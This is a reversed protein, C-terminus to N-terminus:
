LRLSRIFKAVKREMTPAKVDGKKSVLYIKSKKLPKMGPPYSLSALRRDPIVHRNQLKIVFDPCHLVSAGLRSTQLATELLEFEYKVTRAQSRPWMDLSSFDLSNVTLTTIPAAFPWKLFPESAWKKLGFIGMEFSGVETFDTKPNPSPLYTFGFEVLGDEVAREIQGPPMELLLSDRDPFETTLLESAFYSSFVEFSGIRLKGPQESRPSSMADSFRRFEDLLAASSKYVSYGEDTIEIGRGEPRILKLRLESELLSVAKSMSGPAIGVLEAAKRLNKTEVVAAFYVLRNVNM